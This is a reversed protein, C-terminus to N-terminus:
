IILGRQLLFFNLALCLKFKNQFVVAKSTLESNETQDFRRQRNKDKGYNKRQKCESGPVFGIM